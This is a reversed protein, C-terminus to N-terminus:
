INRINSYLYKQTMTTPVHLEGDRRIIITNIIGRIIDIPGFFEGKGIVLVYDGGTQYPDWVYIYYTGPESVNKDLVPGEYYSKGGFPEYFTDREMGPEVNEMVIGGYGESLNFPLQQNVEPLGPGVLAFWPVFDSYYEDVVPIILEVYINVPRNRVKFMYVDIDDNTDEEDTELWAYFAKSKEIMKWVYYPDEESYDRRELYPVHATAVTVLSISVLFSILIVLSKHM